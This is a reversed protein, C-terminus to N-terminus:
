TFVFWIFKNGLAARILELCVNTTKGVENNVVDGTYEEKKEDMLPNLEVLDM